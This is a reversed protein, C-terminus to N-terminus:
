PRLLGRIYQLDLRAMEYDYKAKFHLKKADLYDNQYRIVLDPDSRGQDYKKVEGEWKLRQNSVAQLTVNLRKAHQSVRTQHNRISSIIENEKNKLALLRQAREIKSKELDAKAARNQLPFNFFIGTQWLPNIGGIDNLANTYKPDIGNIALSTQLDIQPLKSNKKIAIAINYAKLEQRIAIIDPHNQLAEAIMNDTKDLKQYPLPGSGLHVNTDILNLSIKLSNLNRVLEAWAVLLDNNKINVNSAFAYLDPEEILGIDLKNRNTRYLKQALALAENEVQRLNSYFISAWYLSLNNYAIKQLQSEVQWSITKAQQKALDLYRRTQYGFSNKALPQRVGLVLESDFLTNDIAFPSNSKERINQFDLSLETGSPTLQSVGVNFNTTDTETGFVTTARESRDVTHSVQGGLVTDYQSRTMKINQKGIENQLILSQGDLSESFTRNIVEQPTIKVTAHAFPSNIFLFPAVFFLLKKM